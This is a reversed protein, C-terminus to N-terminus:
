AVIFLAEVGCFNAVSEDFEVVAADVFGSSLVRMMPIESKGKGRWDVKRAEPISLQDSGTTTSVVKDYSTRFLSPILPTSGGATSVGSACISLHRALILALFSFRSLYNERQIRNPHQCTGTPVLVECIEALRINMEKIFQEHGM